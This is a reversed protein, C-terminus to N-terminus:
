RIHNAHRMEEVAMIREMRELAVQKDLERLSRDSVRGMADTQSSRVGTLYQM